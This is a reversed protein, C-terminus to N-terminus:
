TVFCSKSRLFEFKGNKPNKGSIKIYYHFPEYKPTLVQYFFAKHKKVYRGEYQLIKKGEISVNLNNINLFIMRFHKKLIQGVADAM